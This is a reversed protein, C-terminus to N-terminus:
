CNPPTAPYPGTWEILHRAFPILRDLSHALSSDLIYVHLIWQIYMSVFSLYLAFIYVHLPSVCPPTSCPLYVHFLIACFPPYMYLVTAGTTDTGCALYNLGLTRVNSKGINNIDSAPMPLSRTMALCIRLCNLMWETSAPTKRRIRYPRIQGSATRLDLQPPIKILM